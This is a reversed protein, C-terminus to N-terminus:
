ARRTPIHRNGPRSFSRFQRRRPPPRVACPCVGPSASSLPVGPLCTRFSCRAQTLLASIAWVTGDPEKQFWDVQGNGPFGSGSGRYDTVQGNKLLSVGGLSWGILLGGDPLAMLSAVDTKPLHVGSETDYQEFRVGDFRYLGTQAAFWLFGDTTQALSRARSPAGDKSTWSDHYLQDLRRDRDIAGSPAGIALGILCIWSARGARAISLVSRAKSM